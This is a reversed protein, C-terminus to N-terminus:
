RNEATSKLYEADFSECHTLSIIKERCWFDNEYLCYTDSKKSFIMSPEDTNDYICCIDCVSILEPILALAKFYRERIKDEPVDHGGNNVRNRVRMVNIEPSSTLVYYCLVFYNERKARKLLELNRRTSLVTEFTFDYHNALCDERRKEALQAAELDSCKYVVKIEDANIYEGVQTLAKTVTSKGSGNPGAFVVVKAKCLDDM